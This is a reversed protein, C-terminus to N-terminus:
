QVENWPVTVTVVGESEAAVSGQKFAFTVGADSVSWATDTSRLDPYQFEDKIQHGPSRM